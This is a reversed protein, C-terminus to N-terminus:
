CLIGCMTIGGLKKKQMPLFGISIFIAADHSLETGTEMFDILNKAVSEKKLQSLRYQM